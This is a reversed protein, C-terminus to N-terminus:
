PFIVSDTSSLPQGADDFPAYPHASRMWPSEGVIRSLPLENDLMVTYINDHDVGAIPTREFTVHGDAYLVNQGMGNGAWGHNGSNFPRWDKPSNAPSLSAAPLAVGPSDYPGKDAALTMRSDVRENARTREPGFPVQYGYSVNDYSTFDYFRDIQLTPDSEDTGSPCIFWRVPVDGSRVLMWMARTPSLETTGGPGSFSPQTRDPSRATGEGKGIDITYRIRGIASDDFAPAPWQEDNDNAYLRMSTGIGKLNAACVLRKALERSKRGSFRPLALFLFVGVILVVVILEIL